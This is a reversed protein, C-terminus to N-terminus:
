SIREKIRRIIEEESHEARQRVKVAKICMDYESKYKTCFKNCGVARSKCIECIKM